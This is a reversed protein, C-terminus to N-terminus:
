FFFCSHRSRSMYLQDREEEGRQYDDGNNILDRRYANIIFSFFFCM